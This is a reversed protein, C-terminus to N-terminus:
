LGDGKAVQTCGRAGAARDHPGVASWEDSTRYRPGEDSVLGGGPWGVLLGEGEALSRRSRSAAIPPWAASCRRCLVPRGLLPVVRWKAETGSSQAVTPTQDGAAWRPGRALSHDTGPRDMGYRAWFSERGKGGM